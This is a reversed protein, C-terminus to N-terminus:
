ELVARSLSCSGDERQLKAVRQIAADNLQPAADFNDMCIERYTPQIWALECWTLGSAHQWQQLEQLTRLHSRDDKNLSCEAMAGLIDFQQLMETVYMAHGLKDIDCVLSQHGTTAIIQGVACHVGSVSDIFVPLRLASTEAHAYKADAAHAQPYTQQMIYVHLIHLSKCRAAYQSATLHLASLQQPVTTTDIIQSADVNLQIQRPLEVGVDSDTEVIEVERHVLLQWVAYLHESVRQQEDIPTDCDAVQKTSQHRHQLEVLPNM